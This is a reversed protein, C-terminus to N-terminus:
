RRTMNTIPLPCEPAPWGGTLRKTGGNLSLAFAASAGSSGPVPPAGPSRLLTSSSIRLQSNRSSACRRHGLLGCKRLGVENFLDQTDGLKRALLRLGDDFSNEIADDLRQLLPLLDFDPSEAAEAGPLAASSNAAIRFGSCLDFHGGFLNREELGAFLQFVEHIAGLGLCCGRASLLSANARLLLMGTRVTEM